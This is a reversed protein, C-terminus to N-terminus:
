SDPRYIYHLVAGAAIAFQALHYTVMVKGGGWKISGVFRIWANLVDSIYFFLAGFAVLLAAKYNWERDMLTLMAAYLMISIVISYIGIPLKMRTKSSKELGKSLEYFIRSSVLLVIGLIVLGPVIYEMKPLVQGFGLIFFIHAVLFSLLGPIFFTDPGMLFVDGFLCAVMGILFWLVPFMVEKVAFDNFIMQLSMWAIICVMVSPKTFYILWRNKFVEGIWNILALGLGIVLILYM